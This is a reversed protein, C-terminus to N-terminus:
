YKGQILGTPHGLNSKVLLKSIRAKHMLQKDTFSLYLVQIYKHRINRQM